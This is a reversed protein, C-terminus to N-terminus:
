SLCGLCKGKMGAGCVWGLGRYFEMITYMFGLLHILPAGAARQDAM